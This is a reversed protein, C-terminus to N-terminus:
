TEEKHAVIPVSSTLLALAVIRCASAARTDNVAEYQRSAEMCLDRCRGLEQTAGEARVESFRDALEDIEFSLMGGSIEDACARAKAYDAKSVGAM